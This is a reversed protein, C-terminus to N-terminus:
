TLSPAVSRAREGAVAPEQLAALRALTYAGVAMALDRVAVDLSGALVLNGAIATLWGAALYAGYKTWRTLVMVGVAIEVIGVFYMFTTPTVPLLSAIGPSLYGSWDALLNFFKDVGALAPVLGYTWRLATFPTKLEQEIMM